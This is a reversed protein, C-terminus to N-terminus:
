FFQDMAPKRGNGSIFGRALNLKGFNGAAGFPPVMGRFPAFRVMSLIRLRSLRVGPSFSAKRAAAGPREWRKALDLMTANTIDEPKVDHAWSPIM